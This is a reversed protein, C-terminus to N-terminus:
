GSRYCVAVAANLDVVVVAAVVVAQLPEAADRQGPTPPAVGWSSGITKRPWRQSSDEEM